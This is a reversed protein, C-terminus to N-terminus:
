SAQEAPGPVDDDLRLFCAAKVCRLLGDSVESRNGSLLTKMLDPDTSIFGGKVPGMKQLHQLKNGFIELEDKFCITDQNTM